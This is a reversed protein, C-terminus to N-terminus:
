ESIEWAVKQVKIPLDWDGWIALKDGYKKPKIKSAYRKRTDVRLRSRQYHESNFAYWPNDPDNKQMWDNSWDDAIDLIEEVLADAAEEKAITYQNLFEPHERMRKFVTALAPTRDEKCVTRLSIWQSLMECMREATEQTYESPRGWLNKPTEEEPM